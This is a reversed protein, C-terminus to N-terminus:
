RKANIEDLKRIINDHELTNRTELKLLSQEKQAMEHELNKVQVQIKAVEITTKNWIGIMGFILGAFGLAVTIIQYATM